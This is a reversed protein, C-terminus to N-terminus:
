ELLEALRSIAEDWQIDVAGNSLVCSLVWRHEPTNNMISHPVGVNVLTPLGIVASEAMVCDGPEAYLYNTGVVTVSSKM